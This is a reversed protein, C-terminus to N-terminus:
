VAFACKKIKGIGQIMTQMIIEFDIGRVARVMGENTRFSVTLNQAQLIKEREDM